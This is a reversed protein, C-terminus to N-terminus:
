ARAGTPAAAMLALCVREFDAAVDAWTRTSLDSYIARSMEALRERHAGCWRLRDVIAGADRIPVFWGNRDPSVLDEGAGHRTTVIPLGAARAQALVMGYGDEITPFVFVDAERYIAPLQAQPVKGVLTVHPGLAAALARAEELIPGVIRFEVRDQAMTTMAHALDWWGKRFGVTGVYLVRLPAGSALRACRADIAAPEPRFARVDVGLPVVDIKDAQFGHREFSKQAFTSLVLVRDVLDYERRERALIWDGPRDLPTGTRAEEDRLLEDQEDIHASGRMLITRRAGPGGRRLLEESVGSWCHIVDWSERALREAAWRGFAKLVAPEAAKQVTRPLRDITRAVGAHLRFPVIQDASLGFRAAAWKPYNTLVTVSHGRAAMERALDFGHFRGPIVLALKM